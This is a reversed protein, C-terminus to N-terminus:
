LVKAFQVFIAHGIFGMSERWSGAGGELLYIRRAGATPLMQDYLSYFGSPTNAGLFFTVKKDM